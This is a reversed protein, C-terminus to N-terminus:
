RCGVRVLRVRAAKEVCELIKIRYGYGVGHYDLSGKEDERRGVDQHLILPHFLNLTFTVADNTFM